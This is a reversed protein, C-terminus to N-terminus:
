QDLHIEFSNSFLFSIFLELLIYNTLKVTNGAICRELAGERKKFM